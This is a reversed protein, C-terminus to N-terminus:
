QSDHSYLRLSLLYLLHCAQILFFSFFHEPLSVRPKRPPGTALFGWEWHLPGPNSGQEPFQIRCAEVLLGCAAVLSRFHWLQSKTCGLLPKGPSAPTFFGNVLAPSVLSKPTIGPNPLDEPIPLPLGSWYEQRLIGHVSSGPLSCNMPDCVAPCSQVCAALYFFVNCKVSLRVM